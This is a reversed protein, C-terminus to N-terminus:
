PACEGRKGTDGHVGDFRTAQHRKASHLDGHQIGGPGGPVIPLNSPSGGGELVSEFAAGFRVNAVGPGPTVGYSANSADFVFTGTNDGSRDMGAFDLLVASSDHKVSITSVGRGRLPGYGLSANGPQVDFVGSELSFPVATPLAPNATKLSLIGGSRVIVESTGTLRGAGELVLTGGDVITRGTFNNVGAPTFTNTVSPYSTGVRLSGPGNIAGDFVSSTTVLLEGGTGIFVQGSGSIARISASISGLDFVAGSSINVAQYELATEGLVRLTGENVEVSKLGGLKGGISLVGTGRKVYTEAEIASGITLDGSVFFAATQNEFSLRGGDIAATANPPVLVIGSNIQVTGPAPIELSSGNALTLTEISNLNGISTVNGVTRFDANILTSGGTLTTGSAYESDLMPRLGIVGSADSAADYTVLSSPTGPSSYHIMGTVSNGTASPQVGFLIRNAAPVNGGLQPVDLILFSRSAVYSDFSLVNSAVGPADMRLRNFKASEAIMLSGLREDTSNGANGLFEFSGSDLRIDLADNFRNPVVATRNDLRLASGGTVTVVGNFERADGLTVIGSGTLTMNNEGGSVPGQLDVAFGQTDIRAANNTVVISRSTSWPAGLKISGGVLVRATAGLVSDSPLTLTGSIETDGTHGQPAALIVDGVYNISGSGTTAVNLTLAGAPIGTLSRTGFSGRVGTLRLPRTWSLSSTGTYEISGNNLSVEGTEPGLNAASAYSLTGANVTLPGTFENTGTLTLVGRGSKTLGGTGSIVGALTLNSRTFINAERADFAFPMSFSLDSGPSASSAVVGSTVTIRGTGSLPLTSVLSNVAIDVNNVAATTLRVNDGVTFTSSYEGADLPRVRGDSEVTMLHGAFGDIAFPLIGVNTATTGAGILSSIMSSPFMVKALGTKELSGLAAGFSDLGSVFEFTGRDVRSVSGFGLTVPQGTTGAYASLTSFGNSTLSSFVESSAAAVGGHLTVKASNLTVPINGFRRLVTDTNLVQLTSQSLNISSSALATGGGFLAIGAPQSLGTTWVSTTPGTYTHAGTLTGLPTRIGVAGSINGSSIIRTARLEGGGLLVVGANELSSFEASGPITMMAGADLLLSAAKFSSPTALYLEGEQVRLLGGIPNSQSLMLTGTGSKDINASDLSSSLHLYGDTQFFGRPSNIAIRGGSITASAGSRTLIGGTKIWLTQDNALALTSSGELTLSGITNTGGVAVTAGGALFHADVSTSGGNAPNRIESALTYEHPRLTRVGVTGAGDSTADYVAFSSGNGNAIDDALAGPILGSVLTPALDFVIRSFQGSPGGGLNDGRFVPRVGGSDFSAARLTVSASGSVDLTVLGRGGTFELFALTGMREVTSETPNGLIRLEGDRGITVMANDALRNAVGSSYDLGLIGNGVGYNISALGGSGTLRLVGGSVSISGNFPQSGDITLMGPDSKILAVNSATSSLPGSWTAEFGNTSVLSSGSVVIPRNTTWPGFLKLGAASDKLELTGGDGLSNDSTIGIGGQMVTPGTYTNAGTLIVYGNGTIRIGGSGTIAGSVEISSSRLNSTRLAAYGSSTQIGRSLVVGGPGVFQLGAGTVDGNIVIPSTSAGLNEPALFRVNGANITLPGTFTNAGSLYLDSDGSKTLGGSGSIPGSMTLFGYSFISGEAGGFEVPVAITPGNGDAVIAGSTITLPGSGSVTQSSVIRLANITKPASVNESLTISVNASSGAANITSTYETAPNLVRLGYTPDLTVFGPTSSSVTGIVYPLISTNAGTGGGGILGTPASTFRIGSVGAGPAAGLNNGAVAFTGRDVRQLGAATLTANTGSGPTILISSFGAGSLMGIAESTDFSTNGVLALQANSLHVPTSDAIRGGAPGTFPTVDNITLTTDPGMQVSSTGALAGEAGSITLDGAVASPLNAVGISTKTVGTYQARTGITLDASGRVLIGGAGTIGGSGNISLAGTSTGDLILSQNLVLPASMSSSTSVQDIIGGNIEVRGSTASFGTIRFRGSELSIVANGDASGSLSRLNQPNGGDVLQVTGPGRFLNSITYDAGLTGLTLTSGGLEVVGTGSLAGLSAPAGNLDFVGGTAVALSQASLLSGDGVRFRGGAVTLGGTNTPTTLLTLTGSGTKAWGGTGAVVSSLQLDGFSAMSATETGFDITGGSITSLTAGPRVLVRGSGVTLVQGAGLTLSGGNDLTLSNISNAAGSATTGAGGVFNANVPTTGGNGPNQILLGATVETPKLARVGIVGAADSSTDYVAFSVPTGVNPDEAFIDKALGGVSAPVTTIVLRSFSGDSAGGLNDGRVLVLGSNNALTGARLTNGFSGPSILSIVSNANVSITGVTETVSSSVNGSQSFEGGNLSITAGDGVQDSSAIASKDLLLKGGTNAVFNTTGQPGAGNLRLTGGSVALGGTYANANSITLTGLGSKNVSLNGLLLGNWTADFGATDITGGGRITRSSNWTGGLRLTGGLDLEGTGLAADSNILVDGGTLYVTGSFTNNGSVVLTSGPTSSLRLGGAGSITGGLNFTGGGTSQFRAIGSSVSLDRSLSLTGSGAYNLGANQGNLVIASNEAGLQGVATFVIQGANITLGGTISNSAASLTLTGDGSKTLGGNGQIQGAIELNGAAFIKADTGGFNLSNQISAGPATTALLAGSTIDLSGTGTVSGGALTLSNITAAANNAAATTLRVNHTSAVPPLSIAYETAVDLLRIGTAPNYTVFGSGVGTSTTDGIAYPLISTELGTGGGGVLGTPATTFLINGINAGFTGGLNTGRFLVMGREIRTLSSATLRAGASATPAVSVISNGGVSLAGVTETQANSGSAAIFSLRGSRLEIPTSDGVRNTAGASTGSIQLTGNARVDILNSNLISGAGSLALTGAPQFAGTSTPGLDIRTAGNYTSVGTLTLTSNSTNTRLTLGTGSTSSSIVGSITSSNAGTILLDSNLSIAKALVIGTAGFRMNGGNVIFSGTGLAAANTISLNGSQLTVGGAPGTFGSLTILQSNFSAPQAGIVLRQTAAGGIGGSITLDGSGTGGITTLGTSSELTLGASVTVDGPGLIEIAPADGTMRLSSGSITLPAAANNQFLLRNLGFLGGIDNPANMSKSAIPRFRLTLNSDSVPVTGDLWNAGVSWNGTTSGIWIEEAARASQGATALIAAISVTLAFKQKKHSRGQSRHPVKGQVPTRTALM